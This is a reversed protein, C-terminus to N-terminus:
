AAREYFEGGVVECLHPYVFGRGPCTCPPLEGTERYRALPEGLAVLLSEVEEHPLLEVEVLKRPVRSRQLGQSVYWLQAEAVEYGNERLLWAYINVQMEHELRPFEELNRSTTKIDILRKEGPLYLDATGQVPLPVLNSGVPVAVAAELHLEQMAGEYALSALRRHILSGSMSAWVWDPRVYYPELMQLVRLRPCVLAQSPSLWLGYVRTVEHEMALLVPYIWGRFDGYRLAIARAEEFSVTEDGGLWWGVAPM